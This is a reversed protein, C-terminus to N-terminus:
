CIDRATLKVQIRSSFSSLNHYHSIILCNYFLAPMSTPYISCNQLLTPTFSQRRIAASKSVSEPIMLRTLLPDTPHHREETWPINKM